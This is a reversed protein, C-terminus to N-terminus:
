AIGLTKAEESTVGSALVVRATTEPGLAAEYADLIVGGRDEEPITAWADWIVTVVLQRNLRQEEQIVVPPQGKVTGLGRKGRKAPFPAPGSLRRPPKRLEKALRAVLGRHKKPARTFYPM